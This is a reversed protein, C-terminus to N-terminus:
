IEKSGPTFSLVVYKAPVCAHWIRPLRDCKSEMLATFYSQKTTSFSLSHGSVFTTWHWKIGGDILVFGEIEKVKDEWSQLKGYGAENLIKM